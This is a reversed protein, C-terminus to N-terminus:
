EGHIAIRVANDFEAETVRAHDVWEGIAWKGVRAAAAFAWDPTRKLRKWEFVDRVPAPKPAPPKPAPKIEDDIM